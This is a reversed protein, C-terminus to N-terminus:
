RIVGPDKDAQQAENYAELAEARWRITAPDMVDTWLRPASSEGGAGGFTYIEMLLLDLEAGPVPFHLPTLAVLDGWGRDDFFETGMEYHWIEVRKEYKLADWLDGCNGSADSKRPTCRAGSTGTTTVAPLEGNAVRTENVIDAAGQLDGTRYLAEARILDLERTPFVGTVGVYNARYYWYWINDSYNSFHYTGRSAPFVEGSNWRIYTGHGEPNGAATIRRDDTDIKFHDRLEPNSQGIWAQYNGSQDALGVHRLDTRGWGPNTGGHNKLRDWAWNVDNSFVDFDETHAANVESMVAGWNVAAREAPTRAVEIMGKAKYGHAIQAMRTNSWSGGDGVWAPPITFSNSGAMAIAADLKALGAAMVDAYPSMEPLANPDDLSTTEDVIFARDFMSALRTLALGQILAGFAQARPTDVGDVGLEVGNEIAILGDRVGSLARYSDRWTNRTVYAYNASPDNNYATRPESSAERMAFNGWSSTHADAMTSMVIGGANYHGSSWWSSFSGAILSEVDGPTSIARERDPDNLNVVDLDGCATASIAIGALALIRLLKM